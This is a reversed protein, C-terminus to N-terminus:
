GAPRLVPFRVVYWAFDDEPGPGTFRPGYSMVHNLPNIRLNTDRDRFLMTLQFFWGIM